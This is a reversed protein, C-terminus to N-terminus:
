VSRSYSGKLTNAPVKASFGLRAPSSAQQPGRYKKTSCGPVYTTHVRSGHFRGSAWAQKEVLVDEGVLVEVLYFHNANIHGSHKCGGM